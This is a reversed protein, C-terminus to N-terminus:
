EDAMASAVLGFVTAIAGFFTGASVLKKDFKSM